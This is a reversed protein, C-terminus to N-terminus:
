FRYMVGVNFQFQNLVEGDFYWDCQTGNAGGECVTTSDNKLITALWRVEGLAVFDKTIEYELGGFLGTAFFTDSDSFNPSIHNVGLQAGLYSSVGETVPLVVASQFLLYDLDLEYGHANRQVSSMSSYYLGYKSIGDHKDLSVGFNSDDKIDIKTGKETVLEQNLSQGYYGTVAIDAASSFSLATLVAAMTLKVRM